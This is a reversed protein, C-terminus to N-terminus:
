ASRVQPLPASSRGPLLHTAGTSPTISDRGVATLPGPTLPLRRHRLKLYRVDGDFEARRQKEPVDSEGNGGTFPPADDSSVPRALCGQEPQQRTLHLRRAAGDNSLRRETYRQQILM